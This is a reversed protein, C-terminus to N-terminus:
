MQRVLILPPMLHQISHHIAMVTQRLFPTMRVRVVMTSMTIKMVAGEANMSESHGVGDGVGVGAEITEELRMLDDLFLKGMVHRQKDKEKDLAKYEELAHEAVRCRNMLTQVEREHNLKHELSHAVEIDGVIDNLVSLIESQIELEEATKSLTELAQKSGNM